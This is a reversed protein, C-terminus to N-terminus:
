IINHKRLINILEGDTEDLIEKIKNKIKITCSTFDSEDYGTKVWAQAMKEIMDENIVNVRRNQLAM